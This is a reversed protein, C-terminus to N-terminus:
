TIVHRDSNTGAFAISREVALRKRQLLNLRTGAIGGTSKRGCSQTIVKKSLLDIALGLMQAADVSERRRGELRM